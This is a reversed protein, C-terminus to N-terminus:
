SIMVYRIVICIINYPEQWYEGRCWHCNFFRLFTVTGITTVFGTISCTSSSDKEYTYQVTWLPSWFPLTWCQVNPSVKQFLMPPSLNFECLETEARSHQVWQLHWCHQSVSSGSLVVFGTVLAVELLALSLPVLLVLSSFNNRFFHKLPELTTKLKKRIILSHDLFLYLGM